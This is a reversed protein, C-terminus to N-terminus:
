HMTIREAPEFRAQAEDNPIIARIVGQDIALAHDQLVAGAPEVPIIWRAELLIDIKEPDAM